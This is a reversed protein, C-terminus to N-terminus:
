LFLPARGRSGTPAKMNQELNLITECKGMEYNSTEYMM